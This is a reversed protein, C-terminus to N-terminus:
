ATGRYICAVSGKLRLGRLKFMTTGSVASAARMWCQFAVPPRLSSSMAMHAHRVLLAETLMAAAEAAM